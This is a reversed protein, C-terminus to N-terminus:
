TTLLVDGLATLRETWFEKIKTIAARDALKGHQIAVQSKSAGKNVFTVEVVSADPWVIRMRKPATASRVTLDVGDLWRRRLRADHFARFLRAVPVAFTKSKSAEYGGGRRQGIERLGKIREYGVTVTQTWWDKVKYKEHVYEAIKRHPWTHAEVRDLAWVWREWNCGTAEKVAADSM